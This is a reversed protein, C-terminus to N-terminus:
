IKTNERGSTEYVKRASRRKGNIYPSIAVQASLTSILLSFALFLISKKM